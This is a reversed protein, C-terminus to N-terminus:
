QASRATSAAEDAVDPCRVTAVPCDISPDCEQGAPCIFAIWTIEDSDALEEPCNTADDFHHSVMLTFTHCGTLLNPSSQYWTATALRPPAGPLPPASPFPQIPGEQAGSSAPVPAFSSQDQYPLQAAENEVGYDVYLRVGIPQGLDNASEVQASFIQREGTIVVIERPDPSATSRLLKPATQEEDEFQPVDTILCSAALMAIMSLALSARAMRGATSALGARPAPAQGRCPSVDARRSLGTASERVPATEVDGATRVM